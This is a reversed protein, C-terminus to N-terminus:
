LAEEKVRKKTIERRWVVLVVISLFTSNCLIAESCVLAPLLAICLRLQLKVACVIICFLADDEQQRKQFSMYDEPRNNPCKAKSM